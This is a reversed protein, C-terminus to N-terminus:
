GYRVLREYIAVLGDARWLRLPRHETDVVIIRKQDGWRVMLPRATLLEDNVQEITAEGMEITVPTEVLAMLRAPDDGAALMTIGETEGVCEALLALGAGSPFWFASGQAVDEYAVENVRRAAIVENGNWVATGGAEQGNGWYRYKLQEPRGISNLTVHYLSSQGSPAERADMDVRLFRYGDQAETLRWSEVAGTPIGNREYRLRGAVIPREYPLEHIIFRM